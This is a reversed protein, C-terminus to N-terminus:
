GIADFVRHTNRITVDPCLLQMHPVDERIITQEVNHEGLMGTDLHRRLLENVPETEELFFVFRVVPVAALATAYWEVFNEQGRALVPQVIDGAYQRLAALDTGFKKLVQVMYSHVLLWQDFTDLRSSVNKVASLMEEPNDAQLEAFFRSNFSTRSDLNCGLLLLGHIQPGLSKDAALLRLLHDSGSSVGALVIQRPRTRAIIDRIFAGLLISHDDLSLPTRNKAHPGFGYLSPAVARYPVLSLVDVLSREDLGMGHLYIILRDSACENDLYTMSDGIMQPSRHALMRVLNTGLVFEKQGPAGRGVPTADGPKEVFGTQAASEQMDVLENRVEQATQFRRTPDKKLCRGVIRAFDPPLLRNREALPRPEDRLISSARLALTNGPFPHEGTALEYLIIGLAFIDAAETVPQGRLQEPAMYAVTGVPCGALTLKTVTDDDNNTLGPSGVAALGFDMLYVHNLRDVLINAPKLDRHIIGHQHAAALGDSIAVALGVTEEPSLMSDKSLVALTRGDIYQMAFFPRGGHEAVEFIKIINPHDLSAVTRAERLFRQRHNADRCLVPLLLKLAVRRQLVTDQALYVEGMGGSGLKGEIRFHSIVQGTKLGANSQPNDDQM